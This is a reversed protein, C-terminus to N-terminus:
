PSFLFQSAPIKPEGDNGRQTMDFAARDTLDRSAWNVLSRQAREQAVKVM